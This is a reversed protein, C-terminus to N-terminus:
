RKRALSDLIYNGKKEDELNNIRECISKLQGNHGIQAETM